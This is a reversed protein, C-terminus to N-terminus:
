AKELVEKQSDKSIAKANQLSVGDIGFCPDLESIPLARGLLWMVRSVLGSGVPPIFTPSLCSCCPVSHCPLFGGYSHQPNPLM